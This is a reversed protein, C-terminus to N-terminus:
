SATWPTPKMLEQFVAATDPSCGTLDGSGSHDLDDVDMQAMLEDEFEDHYVMDPHRANAGFAGEMRTFDDAEDDLAGLASEKIARNGAAAAAAAAAATGPPPTPKPPKSANGLLSGPLSPLGPFSSGLSMPMGFSGIAMHADGAGAHMYDTHLEPLLAGLGPISGGLSGPLPLQMNGWSSGLMPSSGLLGNCGPSSGPLRPSCGLIGGLQPSAGFMGNASHRPPQPAQHQLRQEHMRKQQYFQGFHEELAAAAAAASSHGPGGGFAAGVAAAAAAAQGRHRPLAAPQMLGDFEDEDETKAAAAAAAARTGSRGGPRGTVIPVLDAGPSGVYDDDAASVSQAAAAVAARAAVRSSHPRSPDAARPPPLNAGGARAHQNNRRESDTEPFNCIAASGRISRAAADYARAAQLIVVYPLGGDSIVTLAINNTLTYQCYFPKTGCLVQARTESAQQTASRPMASGYSLTAHSVFQM